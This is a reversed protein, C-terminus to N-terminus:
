GPLWIYRKISAIKVEYVGRAVEREEFRMEGFQEGLRLAGLFVQAAIPTHRQKIRATSQFHADTPQIVVIGM